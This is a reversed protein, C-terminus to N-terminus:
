KYLAEFRRQMFDTINFPTTKQLRNGIKCFRTECGWRAEQQM